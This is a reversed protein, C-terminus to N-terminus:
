NAVNDCPDNTVSIVVVITVILKRWIANTISWDENILNLTDSNMFQFLLINIKNANKYAKTVKQM